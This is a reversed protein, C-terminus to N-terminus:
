KQVYLWVFGTRDENMFESRQRYLEQFRQLSAQRRTDDDADLAARREASVAEMAKRWDSFKQQFEERTLDGAASVLTVPDGVLLDLKGDSNVDDVWVRTASVPGTLEDESLLEGYEVRPGPEILWKFSALQPAKGPGARNEAWQVGGSSTGSLLDLDGDDDWDIVFPDSHYAVLMTTTDDDRIV